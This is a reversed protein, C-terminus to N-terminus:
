SVMAQEIVSKTQETFNLEGCGKAMARGLVHTGRQEDEGMGWCHSSTEPPGAFIEGM